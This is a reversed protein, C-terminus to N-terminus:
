FPIDDDIFGTDFGSPEFKFEDKVTGTNSVNNTTKKEGALFELRDVNIYAYQKNVGDSEYQDIILEGEILVPKGKTLYNALKDSNWKKCNVWIPPEGDKKYNRDVALTFNIVNKNSDFYKLECDRALRGTGIYKNM